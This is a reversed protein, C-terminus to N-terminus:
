LSDFTGGQSDFAHGGLRLTCNCVDCRFCERHFFYGETSLREMVYVRKSCFHCIDSGGLGPPFAKRVVSQSPCSRFMNSLNKIVNKKKGGQISTWKWSIGSFFLWMNWCDSLLMFLPLSNFATNSMVAIFEHKLTNATQQIYLHMTCFLATSLSFWPMLFKVNYYYLIYINKRSRPRFIVDQRISWCKFIISLVKQTRLKNLIHLEKDYPAIRHSTHNLNQM